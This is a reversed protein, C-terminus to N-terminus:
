WMKQPAKYKGKVYKTKSSTKKNSNESIGCEM